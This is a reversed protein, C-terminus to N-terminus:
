SVVFSHIEKLEPSDPVALMKLLEAPIGDTGTAKNSSLERIAELLENVTPISDLEDLCTLIPLNDIVQADIDPERGYLADYHEIWRKLQQSKDTLLNGELDKLPAIKRKVQGIVAKTMMCKM